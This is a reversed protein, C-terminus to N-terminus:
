FPGSCMVITMRRKTTCDARGWIHEKLTGVHICLRMTAKADEEADYLWPTRGLHCWWIYMSEFRTPQVNRNIVQLLVCAGSLGICRKKRQCRWMDTYLWIAMLMVCLVFCFIIVQLTFMVCAWSLGICRGCWMEVYRHITLNGDVDCLAFSAPYLVTVTKQKSGPPAKLQINETDVATIPYTMSDATSPDDWLVVKYTSLVKTFPLKCSSYRFTDDKERGAM